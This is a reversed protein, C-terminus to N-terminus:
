KQFFKKLYKIIISKARDRIEKDTERDVNRDKFTKLWESENEIESLIFPVKEYSSEIKVPVDLFIDDKTLKDLNNVQKRDFFFPADPFFFRHNIVELWPIVESGAFSKIAELLKDCCNNEDLNELDARLKEQNLLIRMENKQKDSMSNLIDRVSKEQWGTPWGPLTEKAMNKSNFYLFKYVQNYKFFFMQWIKM